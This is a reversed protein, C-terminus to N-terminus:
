EANAQLTSRILRQTAGNATVIPLTAGPIPNKYKLRVLYARFTAAGTTELEVPPGRTVVQHVAEGGAQEPLRLPLAYTWTTGVQNWIGRLPITDGGIIIDCDITLSPSGLNGPPQLTVACTGVNPSDLLGEFHMDSGDLRALRSSGKRLDVQNPSSWSLVFPGSAGATGLLVDAARRILPISWTSHGNGGAGNAVSASIITSSNGEATITCNYVRTLSRKTWPAEGGGYTLPITQNVKNNVSVVLQKATAAGDHTWESFPDQVTIQLDARVAGNSISSVGSLALKVSPNVDSTDTVGNLVLLRGEAGRYVVEPKSTYIAMAVKMRHSGATAGSNNAMSLTDTYGKVAGCTVDVHYLGVVVDPGIEVDLEITQNLSASATDVVLRQEVIAIKAARLAPDDGPNWKAREQTIDTSGLLFRVYNGTKAQFDAIKFQKDLFGADIRVTTRNGTAVVDPSLRILNAWRYGMHNGWCNGQDQYRIRALGPESNSRQLDVHAVITDDSYRVANTSESTDPIDPAYGNRRRNVYVSFLPFPNVSIVQKIGADTVHFEKAPATTVWSPPITTVVPTALRKLRTNPFLPNANIPDPDIPNVIIRTGEPPPTNTTWPTVTIRPAATGGSKTVFRFGEPIDASKEVLMDYPFKWVLNDRPRPEILPSPPDPNSRAIPQEQPSAAPQAIITPPADLIPKRVYTLELAPVTLNGAADRLTVKTTRPSTDKPLEIATNLLWASTQKSASTPVGSPAAILRALPNVPDELAGQWAEAADSTAVVFRGPNIETEQNNVGRKPVGPTGDTQQYAVVGVHALPATLDVWLKFQDADLTNGARDTLQTRLTWRERATRVALTTADYITNEDVVGFGSIAVVQPNTSPPAPRAGIMTTGFGTRTVVQGDSIIVRRGDSTVFITSSSCRLSHGRALRAPAGGRDTRWAASTVSSTDAFGIGSTARDGCPARTAGDEFYM